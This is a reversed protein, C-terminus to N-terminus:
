STTQRKESVTPECTVYVRCVTLILMWSRRTTDFCLRVPLDLSNLFRNGFLFNDQHTCLKEM